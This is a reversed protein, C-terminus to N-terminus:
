TYMYVYIILVADYVHTYRHLAIVTRWDKVFIYVYVDHICVLRHSLGPPKMDRMTGYVLWGLVAAAVGGM